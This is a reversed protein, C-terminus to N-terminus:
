FLQYSVRVGVSSSSYGRDGAYDRKTWEVYAGLGFNEIWPQTQLQLALATYDYNEGPANIFELESQRVSAGLSARPNFRYGGRLEGFIEQADEQTLEFFTEDEVGIRLSVDCRACVASNSVSLQFSRRVLQDQTNLRGDVSADPGESFFVANGNGQSTDTVDQELGLSWQTAGASYSAQVEGLGGDREDRETKANYAGISISYQLRRLDRDLFLKARDVTYDNASGFDFDIEMSSVSAGWSTLPNTKRTAALEAQYRLSNNVETRKFRTDAVRATLSLINSRDTRTRVTSEIRFINRDDRNTSIDAEVPNVLLQRSSHGVQLEFRNSENGFNVNSEGILTSEDQQSNEQYVVHSLQYNLEAFDITKGSYMGTVSFTGQHQLEDIEQTPNSSRNANNVKRTELSIVGDLSNRGQAHASLTFFSATTVITCFVAKSPSHMNILGMM